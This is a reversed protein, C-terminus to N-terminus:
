VVGLKNLAGAVEEPTISELCELTGLPCRHRGKTTCPRCSLPKELVIAKARFPFFGFERVTSGFLAVVPINVACGLHMLASDNSVLGKCGRLVEGATLLGTMGTFDAARGPVAATIESATKEEGASGLLVFKEQPLLRILNIFARAPWQKTFWKAGVALAVAEKQALGAKGMLASAKRRAEEDPFIELGKGDDKVGKEALCALCREAVGPVGRLRNIKFFSLLRRKFAYKRVRIREPMGPGATLLRSRLNGHLDVVLDYGSKIKERLFRIEGRDGPGMGFVGSLGPHHRVLPVYQAKTLYDIRAAPFAKRLARVAPVTLLVDGASGLRLILIKDM